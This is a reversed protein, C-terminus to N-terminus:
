HQLGREANVKELLEYFEIALEEPLPDKAFKFTIVNEKTRVVKLEGNISGTVQGKGYGDIAMYIAADILGVNTEDSINSNHNNLTTRIGENTKAEEELKLDKSNRGILYEQLHKWIDGYFPNPQNIECKIKKIVDFEQIKKLFKYKELIDRIEIGVFLNDWYQLVIDSLRGKFAEDDIQNWLRLYCIGSFKPIYVFPVSALALNETLDDRTKKTAEDVVTTEGEPSYKSLKGYIFEFTGEKNHVVNTILWSYSRTKFKRGKDIAEIFKDNDLIGSKLVRGVFYTGNKKSKVIEVKM